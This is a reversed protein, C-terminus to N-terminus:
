ELSIRQLRSLPVTHAERLAAFRYLLHRAFAIIEDTSDTNKLYSLLELFADCGRRDRV